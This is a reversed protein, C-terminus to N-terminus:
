ARPASRPRPLSRGAPPAQPSPIRIRNNTTAVNLPYPSHVYLDIDADDAAAKCRPPVVRRVLGDTGELEAPRRPLVAGPQGGRAKAEAIPDADDGHGGIRTSTM